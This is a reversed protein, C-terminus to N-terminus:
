HPAPPMPRADSVGAPVAQPPPPPVPAPAPGGIGFLKAESPYLQRLANLEARANAEQGHSRYFEALKLGVRIRNVAGVDRVAAKQYAQGALAAADPGGIKELFDGLGEYGVGGIGPVEIRSELM